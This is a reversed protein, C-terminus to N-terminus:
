TLGEESCLALLEEARNDYTHHALVHGRGAAAVQHRGADDHLWAELAERLGRWDGVQWTALHEGVKFHEGLGDVAPHLLFAGRGLSEPIRDSWYHGGGALCSDGVVVRVSAYLDALRQGRVPGLHDPWLGFRDGFWRRLHAVLERRHPWEPHYRHWKGVFAVDCALDRHFEGELKAEDADVAPPLWRHRIGASVWADDHGGDATVVLDCAFFASGAIDRERRLGWWRDLHYGVVPARGRLATLAEDQPRGTNLHATTWIVLEPAHRARALSQWTRVDREDLEDVRHGRRRLAKALDRETAWGPNFPGVYAIRM